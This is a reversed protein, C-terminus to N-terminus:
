EFSDKFIFDVLFSYAAGAFPETNDDANGGVGTANSSERRAGIALLSGSVSVAHGFEDKPNANNAKIYSHQVWGMPENVFIYAAGSSAFTNDDPNSVSNSREKQAAVVLVDGDISVSHGFEDKLGTNSAKLYVQQNWTTDSRTFLYAAGATALSDDEQDGNIGTAFSAEGTAGILINDGSVSVVHGFLDGADTNSAKLYAQQAWNSESRVFVYAAGAATLSNDDQGSGNVGTANSKEDQAGIVITDGSIAVSHGFKDQQNTNSAKLYAQRTWSTDNRVFVYAAGATVALNNDEDGGVGTANSGERIAGVVITDASISVSWGFADADGLMSAELEAQPSWISNNRTFVFVGGSGSEAPAGIVVTDGSIAVSRGFQARDVNVFAKLYAEQSWQTGTLRFVYAAGSQHGDNDQEGNVGAAGGDETWAGVVMTDGSIAVAYGFEDASQTNSAKIYATQEFPPDIAHTSGSYAIMFVTMFLPRFSTQPSKRGVPYLTRRQM